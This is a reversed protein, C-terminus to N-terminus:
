AVWGGLVYYAAWFSLAMASVTLWAQYASPRRLLLALVVAAAFAFLLWFASRVM